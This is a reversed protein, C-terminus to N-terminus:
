NAQAVAHGQDAAMKYYRTIIEEDVEGDRGVELWTGLIYQAEANGQDASLRLYRLAEPINDARELAGAYNLQSIPDGEDASRKIAAYANISQRLSGTSSTAGSSGSEDSM